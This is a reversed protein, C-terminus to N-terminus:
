TCSIDEKVKITCLKRIASVGIFEGLQKVNDYTIITDDALTLNCKRIHRVFDNMNNVERLIMLISKKMILVM